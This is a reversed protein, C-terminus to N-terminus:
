IGELSTFYTMEDRVTASLQRVSMMGASPGKNDDTLSLAIGSLDIQKSSTDTVHKNLRTMVNSQKM